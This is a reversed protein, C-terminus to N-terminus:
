QLRGINFMVTSNLRYLNDAIDETEVSEIPFVQNGHPMKATM